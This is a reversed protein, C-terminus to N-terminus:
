EFLMITIFGSSVLFTVRGNDEVLVSANVPLVFRNPSMDFVIDGNEEGIVRVSGSHSMLRIGSTAFCEVLQGNFWGKLQNVLVNESDQHNILWMRSTAM